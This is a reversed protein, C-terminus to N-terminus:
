RGIGVVGTMGVALFLEPESRAAPRGRTTPVESSTSYDGATTPPKPRSQAPATSASQVEVAVAVTAQAEVVRRIRETAKATEGALDEGEGAVVGLRV